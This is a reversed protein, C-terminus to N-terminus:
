TCSPSATERSRGTASCSCQGRAWGGPGARRPRRRCTTPPCSARSPATARPISSTPSAAEVAGPCSKTLGIATSAPSGARVRGRQHDAALDRDRRLRLRRHLRDHAHERGGQARERGDQRPGVRGPRRGRDRRRGLRLQDQLGGVKGGAERLALKQANVISQAQDAHPGQLPLSSFITLTDGPVRGARSQEDGCGSWRGRGRAACAVALLAKSSTREFPPPTGSHAIRVARGGHM